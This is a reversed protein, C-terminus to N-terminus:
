IIRKLLKSVAPELVKAIMYAVAILVLIPVVPLLIDPMDVLRDLRIIWAIMTNEHILYLPYSIFGFFVLFRNDFLKKLGDLCTTGLFVALITSAIFVSSWSALGLSLIALLGAITALILYKIEKNIYYLYALSGAAFWGFHKLSLMEIVVVASFLYDPTIFGVKILIRSLVWILYLAFIGAIAKRKGLLFYLAGFLLYYKVEVYLSWFTGELEDVKSSTFLEIWTPDIFTLGPFLDAWDPIGKPREPLFQSAPFLILTVILMAPFLRLWRKKLFELYSRTKQLTMLIVFGSLLFFLQVGLLGEKFLVVGAFRDGYPVFTPYRVYAHYMVVLIIAVGRFGDLFEIRKM